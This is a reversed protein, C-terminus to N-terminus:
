EYDVIRLPKRSRPNLVRRPLDNLWRGEAESFPLGKRRRVMLDAYREQQQKTPEIPIQNWLYKVFAQTSSSEM